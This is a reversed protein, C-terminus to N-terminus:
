MSITMRTLASVLLAPIRLSIKSTSVLITTKKLDSSFKHIGHKITLVYVMGKSDVALDCADVFQKLESLSQSHSLDLNFVEISHNKAIALLRGSPHLSLGRVSQSVTAVHSGSFTFKQISHHDAVFIHNSSSVAVSHPNAFKAPGQGRSGFRRVVQGTTTLITVRDGELEAVVIHGDETVM